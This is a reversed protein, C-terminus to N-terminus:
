SLDGPSHESLFLEPVDGSGYRMRHRRFDTGILRAYESEALGYASGALVQLGKANRVIITNRMSHILSMGELHHLAKTVSARSAAILRAFTDHTVHLRDGDIRDYTMLIWRALRQNITGRKNVAATSCLQIHQARAFRLLFLHLPRSLVMAERLRGAEIRLACGAIQVRYTFPSRDDDLAVAEGTMGERGIVGLEIDQHKAPHSIVSILGTEVFYVWRMSRGPEVIIQGKELDTRELRDEVTALCGSHATKLLINRYCERM